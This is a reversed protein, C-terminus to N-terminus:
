PTAERGALFGDCFYWAFRMKMDHEPKDLYYWSQVVKGGVEVRIENHDDDIIKPKSM